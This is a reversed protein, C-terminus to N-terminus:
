PKELEKEAQSHEEHFAGWQEKQDRYLKADETRPILNPIEQDKIHSFIARFSNGLILIRIKNTLEISVRKNKQPPHRNGIQTYLLYEPSLPLMLEGGERGWGGKLDYTGDRYYNLKIAPNDSTPWFVGEAPRIITWKHNHLVSAVDGKLTSKMSSIWFERGVVTKIQLHGYKEGEKYEKEVRVPFDIDQKPINITETKNKARRELEELSEKLVKDLLEPMKEKWSDMNQLLRKPSRVDQAAFFDIIKSWEDRTLRIGEVAKQIAPAAPFEFEDNLWKETEDSEQEGIIRTYLHAQYATGSISKETWFPVNKHEVLRNYVYIKDTSSEWNKLYFQPVFHNKKTVQPM